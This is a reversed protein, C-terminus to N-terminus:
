TTLTYVVLITNIDMCQVSNIRHKFESLEGQLVNNVYEEFSLAHDKTDDMYIQYEQFTIIRIQTIQRM